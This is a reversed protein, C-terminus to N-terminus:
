EHHGSKPKSAQESDGGQPALISSQRRVWARFLRENEETQYRRAKRHTDLITRNEAPIVNGPSFLLQIDELRSLDFYEAPWLFCLFWRDGAQVEQALHRSLRGLIWQTEAPSAKAAGQRAAIKRFSALLRECLFCYPRSERSRASVCLSCTRGQEANRAPYYRREAGAGLLSEIVDACFELEASQRRLTESMSILRRGSARLDAIIAQPSHSFEPAAEKRSTRSKGGM